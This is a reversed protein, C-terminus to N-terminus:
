QRGEVARQNTQIDVGESALMGYMGRLALVRLMEGVKRDERDALRSLDLFQKETFFARVPESHKRDDAM